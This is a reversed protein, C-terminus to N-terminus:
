SILKDYAVIYEAIQLATDGPIGIHFQLDGAYGLPLFYLKGPEPVPPTNDIGYISRTVKDDLVEVRLVTLGGITTLVHIDSRNGPQFTHPNIRNAAARAAAFQKAWQDLLHQRMMALSEGTPDNPDASDTWKMNRTVSQRAAIRDKIKQFPTM